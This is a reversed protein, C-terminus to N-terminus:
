LANTMIETLSLIGKKLKLCYIKTAIDKVLKDCVLLLVMDNFMTSRSFTRKLRQMFFMIM